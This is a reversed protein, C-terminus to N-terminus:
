QKKNRGPCFARAHPGNCLECTHPYTCQPKDCRGFQNFYYCHVSRRNSTSSQYSQYPKRTSQFTPTDQQTAQQQPARFPQHQRNTSNSTSSSRLPCTSSWHGYNKCKYCVPRFSRLHRGVLDHDYRDWRLGYTRGNAMRIRFERDFTSVEEWAYQHAYQCIMSQYFMLEGSMEPFFFVYTRMFNNWALTWTHFDTVKVKISRPVLSIGSDDEMTAESDMHISYGPPMASSEPLLLNFDIYERKKIKEMQTSLVPPLMHALHQQQQQYFLQAAQIEPLPLTTPLSATVDRHSIINNASTGTTQQQQQQVGNAFPVAASNFQPITNFQPIVPALNVNASEITPSHRAFDINASAEFARKVERRIIDTIDVTDPVMVNNETINPQLIPPSVSTHTPPETLAPNPHFHSYIRNALVDVTGRTNIFLETCVLRLSEVPLASWDSLTRQHKSKNLISDINVKSIKKRTKGVAESQSLLYIFLIILVSLIHHKM